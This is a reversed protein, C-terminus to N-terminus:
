SVFGKNHKPAIFSFKAGVEAYPASDDIAFGPLKSAAAFQAVKASSGLKGWDYKQTTPAIKFVSDTSPM